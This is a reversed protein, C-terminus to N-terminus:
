IHLQRRITQNSVVGKEPGMWYHYTLWSFKEAADINRKDDDIFYIKSGDSIGLDDMIAQFIEPMPKVLGMESSDYIKEVKQLTHPLSGNAIKDRLRLWSNSFLGVHYKKAIEELMTLTDSNWYEEAHWVNLVDEVRVDERGMEHLVENWGAETTMKGVYMEKARPKLAEQLRKPDLQLFDAVAKSSSPWDLLVVGVDFLVWEPKIDM